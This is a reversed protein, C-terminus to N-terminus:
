RVTPLNKRSEFILGLNSVFKQYRFTIVTLGVLLGLHFVGMVWHPIYGVRFDILSLILLIFVGYFNAGFVLISLIRKSFLTSYSELGLWALLIYPYFHYLYRERTGSLLVVMGLNLIALYLIFNYLVEKNLFKEGRKFQGYSFLLLSLTLLSAFIFFLIRGLLYPTLSPYNAAFPVFASSYMDRGLFMWLNFGNGSIIDGRYVGENLIYYLHSFYPIPLKLFPDWISVTVLITVWVLASNLVFGRWNRSFFVVNAVLLLGLAVASFWALQKTLLVCGLFVGAGILYSQFALSTSWGEINGNIAWALAVLIFFQDISDIQGWLAGGAWSSILVGIVGAWFVPKAISLKKLIWYILFVNLGDVLSLLLRYVFLAKEYGYGFSRLLGLLGASSFMGIIPYNCDPCTVYIARWGNNWQLGWDWFAEKFYLRPLAIVVFTSFLLGTILFISQSSLKKMNAKSHDVFLSKEM